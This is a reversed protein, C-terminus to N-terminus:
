RDDDRAQELDSLASQAERDDLLERAASRWEKVAQVLVSHSSAYLNRGDLGAVNNLLDNVDTRMTRGNAGDDKDSGPDDLIPRCSVTSSYSKLMWGRKCLAKGDWLSWAPNGCAVCTANPVM